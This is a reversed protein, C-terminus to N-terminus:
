LTNLIKEGPSPQTSPLPSKTPSGPSTPLAAGIADKLLDASEFFEAAQMTYQELLGTRLDEECGYLVQAMALLRERKMGSEQEADSEMQLAMEKWTKLLNVVSAHLM